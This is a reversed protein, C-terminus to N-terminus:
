ERLVSGQPVSAWRIRGYGLAQRIALVTSLWTASSRRASLRGDQAARLLTGEAIGTMRALEALTEESEHMWVYGLGIAEDAPASQRNFKEKATLRGEDDIYLYTSHTTEAHKIGLYELLQDITMTLFKETM